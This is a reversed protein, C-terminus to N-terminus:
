LIAAHKYTSEYCDYTLTQIHILFVAISVRVPISDLINSRMSRLYLLDPHSVFTFSFAVLYLIHYLHLLISDTANATKDIAETGILILRPETGDYFLLFIM